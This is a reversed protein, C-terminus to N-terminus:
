SCMSCVTAKTSPSPTSVKTRPRSYAELPTKKMTGQETCFMLFNNQVYDPNELGHVNLVARVQGRARDRDPEPYSPRQRDERRGAIEYVKLWFVRGVETFFLLYEHTTAM